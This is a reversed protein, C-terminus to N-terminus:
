TFNEEPKKTRRIIKEMIEMLGKNEIFLEVIIKALWEVGCSAIAHSQQTLFVWCLLMLYKLEPMQVM